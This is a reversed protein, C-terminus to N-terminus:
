KQEQEAQMAKEEEKVRAIDTLDMVDGEQYKEWNSRPADIMAAMDETQPATQELFTKADGQIQKLGGTQSDIVQYMPNEKRVNEILYKDDQYTKSKVAERSELKGEETVRSLKGAEEINTVGKDTLVHMYQTKMSTDAENYFSNTVEIENPGKVIDKNEEIFKKVDDVTELNEGKTMLEVANIFANSTNGEKQLCEESIGMQILINKYLTRDDNKQPDILDNGRYRISDIYSERETKETREQTPIVETRADQHKNHVRINYEDDLRSIVDQELEEETTRNRGLYDYVNENEGLGSMIMSEEDSKVLESETTYKGRWNKKLTQENVLIRRDVSLQGNGINEPSRIEKAQSINIKGDQDLYVETKQTTDNISVPHEPNEYEDRNNSYVFASIGNESIACQSGVSSVAELLQQENQINDIDVISNVVERLAVRSNPENLLTENVGLRKLIEMEKDKVQTGDSLTLYLPNQATLLPTKFMGGFLNSFLGM